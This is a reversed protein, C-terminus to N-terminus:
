DPWIIKFLDDPPAIRIAGSRRAADSWASPFEPFSDVSRGRLSVEMAFAFAGGKVAITEVQALHKELRRLVDEPVEGGVSQCWARAVKGPKIGVAILLGKADPLEEQELAKAVAQELSKIYAVLPKVDDGLRRPLDPGPVYLRLKTLAAVKAADAKDDAARDPAILQRV